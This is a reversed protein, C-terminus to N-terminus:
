GRAAAQGDAHAEGLGVARWGASAVAGRTKPNSRSLLVRSGHRPGAPSAGDRRVTKPFAGQVLDAWATRGEPVMAMPQM